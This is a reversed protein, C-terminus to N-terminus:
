QDDAPAHAHRSDKARRLERLALAFVGLLPVLSLLLMLGVSTWPQDKLLAPSLAVLLAFVQTLLLSLWLLSLGFAIRVFWARAETAALKLEARVLAAASDVVASVAEAPTDVSGRQSHPAEAGRPM